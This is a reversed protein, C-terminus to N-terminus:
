YKPQNNIIYLYLLIPGAVFLILKFWKKDNYSTKVGNWWWKCLAELAFYILLLWMLGEMKDWFSGEKKNEKNEM